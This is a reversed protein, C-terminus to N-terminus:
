EKPVDVRHSWGEVQELLVGPLNAHHVSVIRGSKEIVESVFKSCYTGSTEREQWIGRAKYRRHQQDEAFELIRALEDESYPVNPVMVFLDQDKFRSTRFDPLWEIWPHKCVRPFTAEYVVMDQLFLCAHVLDCGSVRVAIRDVIGHPKKCSCFLVSGDVFKMDIPNM